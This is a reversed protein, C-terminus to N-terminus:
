TALNVHFTVVASEQRTHNGLMRITGARVLRRLTEDDYGSAKAAEAITLTEDAYSKLSSALEKACHEFTCAAETCGLSRQLEAQERWTQPLDNPNM